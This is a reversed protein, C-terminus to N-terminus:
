PKRTRWQTVADPERAYIPALEIPTTKSAFEYGHEIADNLAKAANRADLEIEIIPKDLMNARDVFSKPLHGDGVVCRIEPRELVSADCMGLMEVAGDQAVMSCHAMENKSALAILAPRHEPDVGQAAMMPTPIAFLSCGITQALVKASTCAIRLATYGGPGVSVVISGIQSPSVHHEKCLSDVVVMLGDSSRVGQPIPLSGILTSSSECAFLAAAHADPSANPNSLEIALMM